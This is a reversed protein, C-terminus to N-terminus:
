NRLRSWPKVNPKPKPFLWASCSKGSKAWPPSSAVKMMFRDLQAEPLPYTGEQEVPNSHSAGLFTLLPLIQGDLSVQKEQMAELLAAQVKAPSRNIEDALVLNAFIPGRKVEFEGSKVQYVPSGTIDAPLLDPHIPNSQLRPWPLPEFEDCTPDKGLGPIGEILVHGGAILSLVLRDVLHHQGVVM